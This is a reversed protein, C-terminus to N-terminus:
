RGTRTDRMRMDRVRRIGEKRKHSSNKIEQHSSVHSIRPKNEHRAKMAKDEIYASVINITFLIM